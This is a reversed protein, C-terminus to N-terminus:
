IEFLMKRYCDYLIEIEDGTRIREGSPLRDYSIGEMEKSLRTIPCIAQELIRNSIVLIVALSILFAVILFVPTYWIRALTRQRFYFYLAGM